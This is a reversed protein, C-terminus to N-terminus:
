LINRRYITKDGNNNIVSIVISTMDKLAKDTTLVNFNVTKKILEQNVLSGSIGEVTATEGNELVFDAVVEFSKVNTEMPTSLAFFELDIRFSKTNYREADIKNITIIGNEEIIINETSVNLKEIGGADDDTSCSAFILLLILGLNKM